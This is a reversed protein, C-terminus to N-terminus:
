HRKSSVHEGTPSHEDRRRVGYGEIEMPITELRAISLCRQLANSASHIRLPSMRTISGGSMGKYDWETCSL